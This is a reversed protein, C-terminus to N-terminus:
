LSMPKFFDLLVLYRVESLLLELLVTDVMGM